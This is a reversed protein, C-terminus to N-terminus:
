EPEKGQQSSTRFEGVQFEAIQMPNGWFIPFRFVKICEIKGNGKLWIDVSYNGLRVSNIFDGTVRLNVKMGDGRMQKAPVM